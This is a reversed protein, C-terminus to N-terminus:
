DDPTWTIHILDNIPDRHFTLRGPQSPRPSDESLKWTYPIGAEKMAKCIVGSFAWEPYKITPSIIDLSSVQVRIPQSM